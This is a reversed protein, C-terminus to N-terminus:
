SGDRSLGPAASIALRRALMRYLRVEPRDLSDPEMDSEDFLSHYARVASGEGRARTADPLLYRWTGLHDYAVGHEPRFARDVFSPSRSGLTGDEELLFVEVELLRLQRDLPGGMATEREAWRQRAVTSATLLARAISSGRRASGRGAAM